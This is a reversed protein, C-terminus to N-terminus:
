NAWWGLHPTLWVGLFFFRAKLMVSAVRAVATMKNKTPRQNARLAL